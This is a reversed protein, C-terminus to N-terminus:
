TSPDFMCLLTPKAITTFTAPIDSRKSLPVWEDEITPVGTEIIGRLLASRLDRDEVAAAAHDFLCQCVTDPHAWRGIMHPTCQRVFDARADPLKASPLVQARAMGTFAAILLLAVSLRRWPSIM